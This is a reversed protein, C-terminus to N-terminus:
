KLANGKLASLAHMIYGRINIRYGGTNITCYGECTFKDSMEQTLGIGELISTSELTLEM